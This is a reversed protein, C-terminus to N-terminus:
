GSRAARTSPLTGKLWATAPPRRRGGAGPRGRDAHRGRAGGRPDWGTVQVGHAPTSGRRRVLPGPAGSRPASSVSSRTQAAEIVTVDCGATAAVGAVEAGIWGAGISVLRTGPSAGRLIAADDATHLTLADEWGTPAAAGCGSRAGRRGRHDPSGGPHRGHGRRDRAGPRRGPGRAPDRGRPHGRGGRDGREAVCARLPLPAGPCPRGTTPRCGEAGLITVRGRFGHTRLAAVTQAGALGAGVVVVSRAAPRRSHPLVATTM